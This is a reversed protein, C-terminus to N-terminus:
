KKKQWQGNSRQIWDNKLSRSQEAQAFRKAFGSLEEDTPNEKGSLILSREFIIRRAKNEDDILTLLYKRAEADSEYKPAKMNAIYGDFGEGIAEDDKCRRISDENLERVKMARLLAEDATMIQLGAQRIIATKTSSVAWANDEIERYEGIIQNEVLTKEGTLRIAPPSVVCGTLMTVTCLLTFYIRGKM